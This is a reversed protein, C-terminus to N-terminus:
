CIGTKIYKETQIMINQLITLDKLVNGTEMSHNAGETLFLTMERKRCEEQIMATDAWPDATGHFVIGETGIAAFSEYVPTYYVQKANIRHKKAYSAAVATGISKSLFLVEQYDQFEIEELRKEASAFARDFAEKMKTANGKINAPLKQYMIEVIEYGNEKAIKKSYYLLPKGAHYGVGPFIVAIKKM